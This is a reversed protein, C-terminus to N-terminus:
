FRPIVHTASSCHPCIGSDFGEAIGRCVQCRRQWHLGTPQLSALMNGFSNLGAKRHKALINAHAASRLYWSQAAARDRWASLNIERLSRWGWDCFCREPNLDPVICLVNAAFGETGEDLEAMIDWSASATLVTDRMDPGPIHGVNCVWHGPEAGEQGELM